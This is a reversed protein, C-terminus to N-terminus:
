IHILSLDLFTVAIESRRLWDEDSTEQFAPIALTLMGIMGVCGLTAAESLPEILFWRRWGAVHFRDMFDSFREFLERSWSGGQFLGFDLRADIDLLLRQLRTKWGLNPM